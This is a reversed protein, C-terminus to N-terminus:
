LLRDIERSFTVAAFDHILNTRIYTKYFLHVCGGTHGLEAPCPQVPGPRARIVVPSLLGSGRFLFDRQAISHRYLVFDVSHTLFFPAVRDM